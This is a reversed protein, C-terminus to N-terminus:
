KKSEVPRLPQDNLLNTKFGAGRLYVELTNVARKNKTEINLESLAVKGSNEISRLMQQKSVHDDARPGLFEKIVNFEGTTALSATQTDNLSAAKSEGTVQGTYQNVSDTNSSAANKKPLMQQLCRVPILLVPIPTRTVMPRDPHEPNKHPFFVHENLKVGYKKALSVIKSLTPSGTKTSQNLEFFLRERTSSDPNADDTDIRKMFAVFQADSMSKFYQRYRTSNYGNKIGEIDDMLTCIKEEAIKRKQATM